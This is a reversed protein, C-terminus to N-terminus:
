LNRSMEEEKEVTYEISEIMQKYSDSEEDLLDTLTNAVTKGVYTAEEIQELIDIEYGTEEEVEEVLGRIQSLKYLMAEIYHKALEKKEEVESNFNTMTM